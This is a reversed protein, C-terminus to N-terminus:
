LAPAILSSRTVSSTNIATPAPQSTASHCKLAPGIRGRADLEGAPPVADELDICIADAGSNLARELRDIKTAALFLLSRFAM